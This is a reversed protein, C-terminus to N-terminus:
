SEGETKNSCFKSTKIFIKLNRQATKFYRAGLWCSETHKMKMKLGPQWRNWKETATIYIRLLFHGTRRLFSEKHNESDRWLTLLAPQSKWSRELVKEDLRGSGLKERHQTWRQMRGGEAKFCRTPVWWRPPSIRYGLHTVGSTVFWIHLPSQACWAKVTLSSSFPKGQFLNKIEAILAFPLSRYLIYPIFCTNLEKLRKQRKRLEM